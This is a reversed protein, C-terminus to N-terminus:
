KNRKRAAALAARVRIPSTGGSVRKRRVSEAASLLKVAESGFHPSFKRLERATLDELTRGTDLCSRVITGVLHHARRFPVGKLALFEALDTATSFGSRAAEGLREPRFRLGATVATMVELSSRLTDATDFLAEKDEQLDRNYALPLGKLLALLGTLHGITRGTKGRVLEPLDPNRKQPMLSSGTCLEEAIEAWGLAPHSWLIIEEGMRSLHVMTLAAAATFEVAFDRDSVADISNRTIGSLGLDRALLRRDLPVATGALAGSGLTLVAIRPLIERLRKSDRQFMEFYALLHHSLLVPQAPQFHTHGATVEGLYKEALDVLAAKLERLGAV